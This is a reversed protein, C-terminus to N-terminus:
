RFTERWEEESIPWGKYKARSEPGAGKNTLAGYWYQGIEDKHWLYRPFEDKWQDRAFQGNEIAERVWRTAKERDTCENLECITATQRSDELDRGRRPKPIGLWSRKNKHELSGEYDCRTALVKLQKKTPTSHPSIIPRPRKM